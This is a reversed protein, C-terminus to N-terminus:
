VDDEFVGGVPIKKKASPKDFRHLYALPSMNFRKKFLRSFYLPDNFGCSSAVSKITYDFRSVSSLMMKARELRIKVLYDHPTVGYQKKFMRKLYDESLPLNKLYASIEFSSNQYNEALANKIKECLGADSNKGYSFAVYCVILNGLADLVPQTKSDNDLFCERARNLCFAIAGDNEDSFTECNFFPFVGGLIRAVTISFNEASAIEIEADSKCVCYNEADLNMTKEGFDLTPKGSFCYIISRYPSKEIKVSTVSDYDHLDVITNM